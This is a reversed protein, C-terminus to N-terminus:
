KKGRNHDCRLRWATLLYGVLGGVLVWSLWLIAWVWWTMMTAGTRSEDCTKM